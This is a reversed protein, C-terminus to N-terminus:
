ESVEKVKDKVVEQAPQFASYKMFVVELSLLATFLLGKAAGSFVDPNQLFLYIGLAFSILPFLVYWREKRWFIVAGVLAFTWYVIILLNLLAFHM